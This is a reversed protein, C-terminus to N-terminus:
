RFRYSIMSALDRGYSPYLFSPLSLWWISGSHSAGYNAHQDALSNGDRYVHSVSFHMQRTLFLCNYWPIRLRWPVMHPNSFYHVVLTSDTELWIHTWRRVWAVRVAESVALVEADIASPVTVKYAFGGLFHGQSDRFICGFGDRNPSTFSGDM